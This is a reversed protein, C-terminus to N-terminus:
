HLGFNSAGRRIMESAARVLGQQCLTGLVKQENLLSTSNLKEVLLLCISEFGNICAYMLPTEGFSNPTTFNAGMCILKHIIAINNAQIAAHICSNSNSDKSNVNPKYQEFSSFISERGLLCCYYFPSMSKYKPFSCNIIFSYITSRIKPNAMVAAYFNQSDTLLGTSIEHIFKKADISFFNDSVGMTIMIKFLKDLIVEISLVHNRDLRNHLSTCIAWHFLGFLKEANGSYFSVMVKYLERNDGSDSYSGKFVEGFWDKAALECDAKFQRSITALSLLEKPTVFRLVKARIFKSLDAFSKHKEM